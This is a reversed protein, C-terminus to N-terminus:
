ITVHLVKISTIRTTHRATPSVVLEMYPWENQNWNLSFLHKTPKVNHHINKKQHSVM